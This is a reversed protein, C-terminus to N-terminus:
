GYIFWGISIVTLIVKSIISWPAEKSKMWWVSQNANEIWIGISVLWSLIALTTATFGLIDVMM